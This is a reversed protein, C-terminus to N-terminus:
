YIICSVQEKGDKYKVSKIHGNKIVTFEGNKLGDYYYGQYIVGNIKEEGYGNIKGYRYKGKFYDGNNFYFKGNGHKKGNHFEGEYYGNDYTIHGTGEMLINNFWRGDYYDGNFFCYKGKGYCKENTFEGEYYGDNYTIKGRGEIFKDEEWKGKEFDGNYYTFKGYGHMKDDLVDGIYYGVDFDIRDGEDEVEEIKFNKFRRPQINDVLLFNKKPEIKNLNTQRLQKNQSNDIKNRFDGGTQPMLSLNHQMTILDYNGNGKFGSNILSDLTILTKQGTINNVLICNNDLYDNQFLKSFNNINYEGNPRREIQCYTNGNKTIRFSSKNYIDSIIERTNKDGISIVRTITSM